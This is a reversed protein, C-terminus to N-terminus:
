LTIKNLYKLIMYTYKVKYLHSLIIVCLMHAEKSYFVVEKNKAM